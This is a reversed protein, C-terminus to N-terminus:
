MHMFKSCIMLVECGGELGRRWAVIKKGKSEGMKACFGGEVM